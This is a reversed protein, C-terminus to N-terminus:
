IHYMISFVINLVGLIIAIIGLTGQLPRLKALVQEGKAAAQPNKSLAYQQILSYGLIFGLAAEVVVVCMYVIWYVPALTLLNIHIIGSIIGWVGWICLVVGAWGQYPVIKDLMQKMEPKKALLSPVALLGLIILTIGFLM